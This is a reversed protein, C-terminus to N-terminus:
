ATETRRDESVKWTKEGFAKDLQKRIDKSHTSAQVYRVTTKLHKHSVAKAAIRLGCNSFVEGLFWRRAAHWKVWEPREDGDCVKRYLRDFRSHLQKISCNSAFAPENETNITSQRRNTAAGTAADRVPLELLRGYKQRIDDVLYVTIRVNNKGFVDIQGRSLLEEYQGVTLRYLTAVTRAGTYFSLIILSYFIVDAMFKKDDRREDFTELTRELHGIAADLMKKITGEDIALPRVSNRNLYDIRQRQPLSKLEEQIANDFYRYKVMDYKNLMRKCASVDFKEVRKLYRVITSLVKMAYVFRLPKPKRYLTLYKIFDEFAKVGYDNELLNIFKLHARSTDTIRFPGDGDATITCRCRPEDIFRDSKTHLPCDDNTVSLVTATAM